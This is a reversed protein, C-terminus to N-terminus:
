TIRTQRHTKACHQAILCLLDDDDGFLLQPDAGQRLPLSRRPLQVEIERPERHVAIQPDEFSPPHTMDAAM